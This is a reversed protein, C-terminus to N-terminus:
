NEAGSSANTIEKDGEKAETVGGSTRTEEMAEEGLYRAADGMDILGLQEVITHLEATTTM